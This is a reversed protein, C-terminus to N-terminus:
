TMSASKNPTLCRIIRTDWGMLSDFSHENTLDDPLGWVTQTGLSDCRTTLIMTMSLVSSVRSANPTSSTEAGIKTMSQSSQMFRFVSVHSSQM